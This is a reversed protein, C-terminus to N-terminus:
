RPVVVSNAAMTVAGIRALARGNLTAGTNLSISQDALISGSVSSTTGITASSGVQWFINAARAGGSLIVKRGSTTVFTSAMQFIFVANANGRADLTLDGSSIELSSTSKYLGPALTRGGLNGAILIPSNTRGALNNYAKTLDGKALAAFPDTIHKVGVVIGPPFGTVSSGPSLGLDGNVVTPGTNTVTSGALIAFGAAAGLAPAQNVASRSRDFSTASGPNPTDSEPIQLVAANTNEATVATPSKSAAGCGIAAILFSALFAAALIRTQTKMTIVEM